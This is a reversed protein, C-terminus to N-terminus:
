KSSARRRQLEEIFEKAKKLSSDAAHRYLKIARIKDGSQVANAVDDPIDVYPDCEIGANKLLLDV